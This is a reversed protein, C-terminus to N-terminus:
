EPRPRFDKRKAACAIASTAAVGVVVMLLGAYSTWDLTSFRGDDVSASIRDPDALVPLLNFAAHAMACLVVSRTICYLYGLYVGGLVTPLFTWPDFHALGFLAATFWVSGHVSHRPILREM